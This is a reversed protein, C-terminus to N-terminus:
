RIGTDISVDQVCEQGPYIKFQVPLNTGGVLPKNELILLYSGAALTMRYNGDLSPTVPALKYRGMADWVSVPYAKYTEVTPLCPPSPPNQEVPCLPGITIKGTLVGTAPVATKDECGSTFLTFLLYCAIFSFRKIRNMNLM